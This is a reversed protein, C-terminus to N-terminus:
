LNPSAPCWSAFRKSALQSTRNCPYLTLRYEAAHPTKRDFHGRAVRDIFGKLTLETLARAATNKSCGVREAAVRASMGLRGNNVGNYILALEVFLCRAIPSLSRWAPTRLMYHPLSVFRETTSRGTENHRRPMLPRIRSRRTEAVNRESACSAVAVWSDQPAGRTTTSVLNLSRDKSQHAVAQLPTTDPLAAAM